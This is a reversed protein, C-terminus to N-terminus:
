RRILSQYDLRPLQKGSTLTGNPLPPNIPAGDRTLLVREVGPQSTATLVIQAVALPLRDPAQVPNEGTLEITVLGDAVSQAVLGTGTPIASGRGKTHEAVTPGAQLQTLLDQAVDTSAGARVWRRELVVKQGSRDDMVFAVQGAFQDVHTPAEGPTTSTIPTATATPSRLLNYPVNTSSLVQPEGTAPVGCGALLAVALGAVLLKM